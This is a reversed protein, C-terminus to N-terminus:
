PKRLPPSFRSSASALHCSAVMVPAALVQRRRAGALGVSALPARRRAADRSPFLAHGPGQAPPPAALPAPMPIHLSTAAGPAWFPPTLTSSLMRSRRAGLQAATTAAAATAAAAPVAAANSEAAASLPLPLSPLPEARAPPRLPGPTREGSQASDGGRSSQARPRPQSASVAPSWSRSFNPPGLPCKLNTVIENLFLSETYTMEM